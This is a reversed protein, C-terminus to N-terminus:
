NRRRIKIVRASPRALEREQLAEGPGTEMSPAPGEQDVPSGAEEAERLRRRCHALARIIYKEILSKSVGMAQAIEDHTMGSVRSHYFIERAKVPLESLAADVIALESRAVTANEGSEISSELFHSEEELIEARRRSVKIHDIAINAAMCFLYRRAEIPTGSFGEVRGLRLYIESALDEALHHCRLRRLLFLEIERRAAVFETQLLSQPDSKERALFNVPRSGDHRAHGAGAAQRRM